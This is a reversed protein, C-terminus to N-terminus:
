WCNGKWDPMRVMIYYMVWPSKPLLYAMRSISIAAQLIFGARAVPVFPAWCHSNRLKTSIPWFPQPTGILYASIIAMRHFEVVNHDSRTKQFPALEVSITDRFACKGPSLLV